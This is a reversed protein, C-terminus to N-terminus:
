FPKQRTKTTTITTTAQELLQRPLHCSYVYPYAAFNKKWLREKMNLWTLPMSHFTFQPETYGWPWRQQHAAPPAPPPSSSGWWLPRSPALWSSPSWTAWLLLLFTFITRSSEQDQLGSLLGWWQVWETESWGGGQSLLFLWGSRRETM